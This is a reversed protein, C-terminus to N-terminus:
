GYNKRYGTPHEGRVRAISELIWEFVNGDVTPRYTLGMLKRALIDRQPPPDIPEIYAHRTYVTKTKRIFAKQSIPM